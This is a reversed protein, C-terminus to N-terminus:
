RWIFLFILSFFHRCWSGIKFQNKKIRSWRWKLKWHAISHEIWLNYGVNNRSNTFLNGSELIGLRNWLTCHLLQSWHSLLQLYSTVLQRRRGVMKKTGLCLILVWWWFLKKYKVKEKEECDNINWYPILIQLYGGKKQYKKQLIPM